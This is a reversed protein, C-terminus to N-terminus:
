KKVINIYKIDHEDILRYVKKCATKSGWVANADKMMGCAICGSLQSATNASHIEIFTFGPVDQLLPVRGHRPSEYWKLEYRGYPIATKGFVKTKTLEMIPDDFSLGRDVDEITHCVFESDLFLEGPTDIQNPENRYLFLEHM